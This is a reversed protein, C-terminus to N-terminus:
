YNRILLESRPASRGKHRANMSSYKTLVAQIRFSKFIRRVEKHDDLSLLFKGKQRQLIQSMQEFDERDFNFRFGKIGYYPPNIYFFTHPHDYRGTELEYSGRFILTKLSGM